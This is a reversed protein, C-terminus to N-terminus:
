PQPAIILDAYRSFHLLGDKKTRDADRYVGRVGREKIAAEFQDALGVARDRSVGEFAADSCADAGILRAGHSAALDVAFKLRNDTDPTPDLYVIIERFSM